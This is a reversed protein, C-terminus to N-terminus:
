QPKTRNKERKEINFSAAKGWPFYLTHYVVLYWSGEKDPIFSIRYHGFGLEKILLPINSSVESNTPDFLHYTFDSQNLGLVLNDANDTITFNDYIRNGIYDSV